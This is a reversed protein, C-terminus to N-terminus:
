VFQARIQAIAAAASGLLPAGAGPGQADLRAALFSLRETPRLESAMREAPDAVQAWHTPDGQRPTMRRSLEGAPLTVCLSLVMAEGPLVRLAARTQSHLRLKEHRSLWPYSFPEIRFVAWVSAEPVWVLNGAIFRAPLRM